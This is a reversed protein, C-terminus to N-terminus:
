RAESGRHRPAPGEGSAATASRAGLARLWNALDTAGHREAADLPTLGDWGVWSLDAGRSLLYEATGRQGGHCAGWFSGTIEEM